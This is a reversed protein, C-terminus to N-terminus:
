RSPLNGGQQSPAPVNTRATPLAQLMRERRARVLEEHEQRRVEDDAMSGPAPPAAPTKSFASSNAGEIFSLFLRFAPPKPGDYASITEFNWTTGQYFTDLHFAGLNDVILGSAAVPYVDAKVNYITDTATAQGSVSWYGSGLTSHQTVQASGLTPTMPHPVASTFFASADIQVKATAISDLAIATSPLDNSWLVGSGGPPICGVSVRGSDKYPNAAAYAELSEVPTGDTTEFTVNVHALCVPQSGGNKLEGFWEVYVLGHTDQTLNSSTLQVGGAVDTTTVRFDVGALNSAIKAPGGPGADDDAGAQGAVGGTGGESATGGTGESVEGGTGAEGGTSDGAGGSGGSGVDGATGGSGAEGGGGGSNQAGGNPDSTGCAALSGLAFALPVLGLSGIRKTRRPAGSTMSLVGNTM